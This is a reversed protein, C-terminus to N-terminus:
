PHKPIRLPKVDTSNLAWIMLALVWSLIAPQYLYLFSTSRSVPRLACSLSSLWPGVHFYTILLNASSAVLMGVSM